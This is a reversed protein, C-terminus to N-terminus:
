RLSVDDVRFWTRLSVDMVARFQIRVTQGRYAAVNFNGRLTYAGPTAVENLNSYTAVTQLLTGATNRVELHLFHRTSVQDRQRIRLSHYALQEGTHGSWQEGKGTRCLM